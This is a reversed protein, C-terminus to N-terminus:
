RSGVAHVRVNKNQWEGNNLIGSARYYFNVSKSEKITVIDVGFSGTLTLWGSGNPAKWDYGFLKVGAWAEFKQTGNKKEIAEFAFSVTLRRYGLRYLADIDLGMDAFYVTDLVYGSNTVTVADARVTTWENSTAVTDWKAYLVLDEKIPTLFNYYEGGDRSMTWGLFLTDNYDALDSPRDVMKDAGVWVQRTQGSGGNNDFVVLFETQKYKAYVVTNAKILVNFDFPINGDKDTTWGVFVYHSLSPENPKSVKQGGEVTVDFSQTDGGQTDFTVVFIHVGSWRATLKLDQGVPLAFDYPVGECEWYLFDHYEYSPGVMPEQVREGDEVMQKDVGGQGGNKDFLVTHYVAEPVKAQYVAYLDKDMSPKGAFLYEQESEISDTWYLFDYGQLIPDKGGSDALSYEQKDYGQLVTQVKTDDEFVGAGAFFSYEFRAKKWKAFLTISQKPPLYGFVFDKGSEDAWGDVYQVGEQNNNMDELDGLNEVGQNPTDLRYGDRVPNGMGLFYASLIPKDYAVKVSKSVVDVNDAAGEFFGGKADFTVTYQKQTKLTVQQRIGGTTLLLEATAGIPANDAIQLLGSQGVSLWDAGKITYGMDTVDADQPTVVCGIGINENQGIEGPSIYYVYQKEVSDWVAKQGDITINEIKEPLVFDYGFSKMMKAYADAGYRWFYAQLQAARSMQETTGDAYVFPYKPSDLMPDVLDWIPAISDGNILGMLAPNDAITQVWEGFQPKIDADNFFSFPKGDKSETAGGLVKLNEQVRIDTNGFEQRWDMDASGGGEGIGYKFQTEIALAVSDVTQRESSELFYQSQIRGGMVVGMLYHTGYTDVLSKPSVTSDYLDMLFQGSLVGRLARSDNQLSLMYSKHYSDLMKYQKESKQTDSTTGSSSLSGSGGPVSVNIHLSGNLSEQYERITTASINNTEQENEVTKEVTQLYLKDKDFISHSYKVTKSNVVSDRIVDIGRGLYSGGRTTEDMAGYLGTDVRKDAGVQVSSVKGYSYWDLVVPWAGRKAGHLAALKIQHAGAAYNDLAFQNATFVTTKNDISVAYGDAGQVSKWRLTPTAYDLRSSASMEVRLDRPVGKDFRLWGWWVGFAGVVLVLALVFCLTKKGRAKNKKKNQIEQEM